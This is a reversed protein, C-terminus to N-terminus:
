EASPLDTNLMRLLINSFRHSFTLLLFSLLQSTYKFFYFPLLATYIMLCPLPSELAQLFKHFFQQAHIHEALHLVSM